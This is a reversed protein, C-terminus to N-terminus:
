PCPHQLGDYGTYTGTNPNYSRFRRACYAVADGNVSNNNQMAAAAAAGLALGAVGAAIWAGSNDRYYWGNNRWYPNGWRGHRPPPPPGYWGRPPQRGYYGRPPPPPPGRWGGQGPPPGRWGPPPGQVEIVSAAGQGALPAIAANLPQAQVPAAFGITSACISAVVAWTMRARGASHRKASTAAMATNSMTTCSMAFEKGMMLLASVLGCRCVTDSPRPVRGKMRGGM